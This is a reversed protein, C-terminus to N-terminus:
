REASVPERKTESAAIEESTEEVAAIQIDSLSTPKPREIKLVWRWLRGAGFRARRWVPGLRLWDLAV